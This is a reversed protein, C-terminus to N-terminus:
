GAEEKECQKANKKIKKGLFKVNPNKNQSAKEHSKNPKKRKQKSTAIHHRQPLLRVRSSVANAITAVITRRIRQAENGFEM